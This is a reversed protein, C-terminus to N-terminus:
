KSPSEYSYSGNKKQNADNEHAAVYDINLYQRRRAFPSPRPNPFSPPPPPPLRLNSESM